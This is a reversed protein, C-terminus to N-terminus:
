IKCLAAIFTFPFKVFGVKHFHARKNKVMTKCRGNGYDKQLGIELNGCSLKDM